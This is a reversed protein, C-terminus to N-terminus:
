QIIKFKIDKTNIIKGRIDKLKLNNLLKLRNRSKSENDIDNNENKLFNFYDKPISKESLTRVLTCINAITKLVLIKITDNHFYSRIYVNM